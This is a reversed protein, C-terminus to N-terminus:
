WLAFLKRWKELLDDFEVLKNALDVYVLTIFPEVVCKFKEMELITVIDIFKNAPM